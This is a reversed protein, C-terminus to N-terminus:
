SKVIDALGELALTVVPVPAEDMMVTAGSFPKVPITVSESELLEVLRRHLRDVEIILPPEPVDVRIQVPEL